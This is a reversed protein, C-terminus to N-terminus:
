FDSPQPIDIGDELCARLWCRKADISNAVAEERTAGCTFCGPLDPFRVLLTGEEDELVEVQEGNMDLGVYSHDSVLMDIECLPCKTKEIYKGTTKIRYEHTIPGEEATKQWMFVHNCWPCKVERFIYSM